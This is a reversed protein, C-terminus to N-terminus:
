QQLSPEKVINIYFFTMIKDKQMINEKNQKLAKLFM